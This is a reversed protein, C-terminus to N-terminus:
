LIWISKLGIPDNDKLPVGIQVRRLTGVKGVAAISTVLVLARGFLCLM